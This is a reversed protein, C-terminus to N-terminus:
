PTFQMRAATCFSNEFRYLLLSKRGQNNARLESGLRACSDLRFVLAILLQCRLLVVFLVAGSCRADNGLMRERRCLEPVM